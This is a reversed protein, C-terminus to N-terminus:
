GRFSRCLGSLHDRGPPPLDGRGEVTVRHVKERSIYSETPTRFQAGYESAAAVPDSQYKAQITRGLQETPNMEASPSQWILVNSEKGYHEQHRDFLIGSKAYPSSLGLLLAGPITALGPLLAQVVEYDPEASQDSRWYAIEDCIVAALTYGRVSRFSNVAVEIVVGGTVELQQKTPPRVIRDALIPLEFFGFIYDMVVRAQDQDSAIVLIRAKEGRRLIEKYSKFCALYVAVLAAITSKGSRRGSILWCEEVIGPLTVRGGTYKSYIEMEERTMKLSFLGRLFVEWNRWSDGPFEGGLLGSDTMVDLISFDQDITTITPLTLDDTKM